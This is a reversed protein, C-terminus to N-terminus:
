IESIRYKPLATIAEEVSANEPIITKFTVLLTVAADRCCASTDKLVMQVLKDKIAKFINGLLDKEGSIGQVFPVMTHEIIFQKVRPNKHTSAIENVCDRSFIVQNYAHKVLALMARDVAAIVATKTEGYKGALLSIWM